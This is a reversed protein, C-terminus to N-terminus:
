PVAPQIFLDLYGRAPARGHKGTNTDLLDFQVLYTAPEDTEGDGWAYNVIGNDADEVTCAKDSLWATGDRKMGYLTVTINTLPKPTGLADLIQVRLPQTDGANISYSSM